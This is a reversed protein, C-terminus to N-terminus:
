PASSRRQPAPSISPPIYLGGVEVGAESRLINYSTDITLGGMTSNQSQLMEAHVTITRKRMLASASNLGIALVALAAVLARAFSPRPPLLPM